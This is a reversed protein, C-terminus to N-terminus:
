LDRAQFVVMFGCILVGVILVVWGVTITDTKGLLYACVGYGLTWMATRIM